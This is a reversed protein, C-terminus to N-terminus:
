ETAAMIKPFQFSEAILRWFLKWVIDAKRSFLVFLLLAKFPPSCMFKEKLVESTFLGVQEPRGSIGGGKELVRDKRGEEEREDESDAKQAINRRLM